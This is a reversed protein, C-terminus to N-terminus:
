RGTASYHIRLDANIMVSSRSGDRAVTGANTSSKFIVVIGNGRHRDGWVASHAASANEELDVTAQWPFARPIGGRGKSGIPTHTVQWRGRPEEIHTASWSGLRNVKRANRRASDDREIGM